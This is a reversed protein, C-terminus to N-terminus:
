GGPCTLARYHTPTVGIQRRFLRDFYAPDGFGVALAVEYALSPLVACFASTVFSDTSSSLSAAKARKACSCGGCGFSGSSGGCPSGSFGFSWAGVVPTAVPVPAAAAASSIDAAPAARQRRLRLLYAYGSTFFRGAAAGKEFSRGGTKRRVTM